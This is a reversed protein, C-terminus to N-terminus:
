DNARLDRHGQPFQYVRDLKEREVWLQMEGPDDGTPQGREFMTVVVVKVPIPKKASVFPVALLLLALLRIM